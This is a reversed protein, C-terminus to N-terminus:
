LVFVGATNHFDTIAWRPRGAGRAGFNLLM